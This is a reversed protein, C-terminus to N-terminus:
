AGGSPPSSNGLADQKREEQEESVRDAAWAVAARFAPLAPDTLLKEAMESSYPIPRGDDDDLGDWDLLVAEALVKGAIRDREVMDLGRVREARPVNEILTERLRRADSNDIGRVNLRLDGMEPIKDIWAGKEVRVPDIRLSSLKM